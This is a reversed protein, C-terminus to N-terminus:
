MTNPLVFGCQQGKWLGASSDLNGTALKYLGRRCPRDVWHWLSWQNHGCVDVQMASFLVEWWVATVASAMHWRWSASWIGTSLISIIGVCLLLVVVHFQTINVYGIYSPKCKILPHWHFSYLAYLIHLVTVFGEGAGHATFRGQGMFCLFKLVSPFSIMRSLKSQSTTHIYIFKSILVKVEVTFPM